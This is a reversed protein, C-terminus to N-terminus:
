SQTEVAKKKKETNCWVPDQKGSKVVPGGPFERWLKKQSSSTSHPLVWLFHWHMKLSLIYCLSLTQATLVFPCINTSPMDRASQQSFRGVKRRMPHLVPCLSNLGVLTTESRPSQITRYNPARHRWPILGCLASFAGPLRSPSVLFLLQTGNEVGQGWVSFSPLSHTSPCSTKWSFGPSRRVM